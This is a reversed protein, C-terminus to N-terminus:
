KPSDASYDFKEHYIKKNINDVRTFIFENEIMRTYQYGDPIVKEELLIFDHDLVQIVKILPQDIDRKYLVRYYLDKVEDFVVNSVSVRPENLMKYYDEQYSSNENEKIWIVPTIPYDTGEVKYFTTSNLKPNYKILTDTDRFTTILVNEKKNEVLLNFHQVRIKSNTQYFPTRLEIPTYKFSDGEIKFSGVLPMQTKRSYYDNKTEDFYLLNILFILEGNLETLRSKVISIVANSDGYYHNFKLQRYISDKNAFVLEQRKMNFYIISDRSKVKLVTAIDDKVPIKFEDIFKNKKIDYYYMIGPRYDLLAMISDDGEAFVDMISLVDLIPENEFDQNCDVEYRAKMFSRFDRKPEPNSCSILWLLSFLKIINKM